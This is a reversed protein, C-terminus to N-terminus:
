INLLKKIALDINKVTIPKALILTNEDEELTIEEVFGSLMIFLLKPNLNVLKKYLQMGNMNPMRMDSIVVDIESSNKKYYELADIGNSFSVVHYSLDTLVEGVVSRVM